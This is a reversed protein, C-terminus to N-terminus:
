PVPTPDAEAPKGIDPKKNSELQQQLSALDPSQGLLDGNTIFTEDREAGDPSIQRKAEEHAIHQAQIPTEAM